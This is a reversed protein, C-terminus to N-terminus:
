YSLFNTLYVQVVTATRQWLALRNGLHISRSSSNSGSSGVARAARVPYISKSPHKADLERLRSTAQFPPACSNGKKQEGLRVHTAAAGYRCSKNEPGTPPSWHACADGECCGASGVKKKGIKSWIRVECRHKKSDFSRGLGECVEAHAKRPGVRAYIASILTTGLLM